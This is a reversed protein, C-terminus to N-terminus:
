GHDGTTPDIVASVENVADAPFGGCRAHERVAGAEDAIYVCYMKDDTVFSHIWQIDPGLDALASLSKLSADRIQTESWDAIGPVVTTAIARLTDEADLSMAILAGASSLLEM